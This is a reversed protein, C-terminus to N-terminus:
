ARQRMAPQDRCETILANLRAAFTAKSFRESNALGAESLRQMWAPKSLVEDMASSLAQVDEIQGVLMASDGLVEPMTSGASALVPCGFSQAELVPIGFGEVFTPFAFLAACRLLVLKELETVRGLLVVDAAGADCAPIREMGAADRVTALGSKSLYGSEAMGAIVLPLRSALRSRQHARILRAVNKREEVAGVYLIFQKPAIGWRRLVAVQSVVEASREITAEDAPIPQYLVRIRSEAEPYYQLIAKRTYESMALMMDAHAVCAEIKRRFKRGNTNSTPVDYLFMDHVTQMIRVAGTRSRISCPATTLVLDSGQASLFDMPLPPIFPKSSALRSVEYVMEVNVLGGPSRLFASRDGLAASDPVSWLAAHVADRRMMALYRPLMQLARIKVKRPFDIDHILAMVDERADGAFVADSLLRYTPDFTALAAMLSKAYM